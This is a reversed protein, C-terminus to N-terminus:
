LWSRGYWGWRPIIKDTENSSHLYPSGPNSVKADNVSHAESAQTSSATGHTGQKSDIGSTNNFVTSMITLGITGGFPITMSLLAVVAARNKRFLGVAHLPAAMFRLGCGYGVVAMFGFVNGDRMTWCAWALM